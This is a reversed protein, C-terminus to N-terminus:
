LLLLGQFHELSKKMLMLYLCDSISSEPQSDYNDLESLWHMCGNWCVGDTFHMGPSPIYSQLSSRWCGTESSYIFFNCPNRSQGILKYHISKSPDFIFGILRLEYGMRLSHKPLTALQNTSPDYVYGNCDSRPNILATSCLLLGKCSRLIRIKEPYDLDNAFTITKFPSPTTKDDLPVFYVKNPASGIELPGQIFLGSARLSPLLNLLQGTFYPKTIVSLWKKSVLKFSMLKRYPVRLLILALLDDDEIVVEESSSTRRPRKVVEQSGPTCRKPKM